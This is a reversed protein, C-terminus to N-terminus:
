YALSCVEDNVDRTRLVIEAVMTECAPMMSLVTKRVDQLAFAKKSNRFWCHTLIWLPRNREFHMHSTDLLLFALKCLALQPQQHLTM